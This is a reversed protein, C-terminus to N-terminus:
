GRRRLRRVMLPIGLSLLTLVSPEPVTIPTISINGFVATGSENPNNPDTQVQLYGGLWDPQGSSSGPNGTLDFYPNGATGEAQQGNVSYEFARQGTNPDITYIFNMHYTQGLAYNLTSGGKGPYGSAAPSFPYYSPGGFQAVVGGATVIVQCDGGFGGSPNSFIFGAELDKGNPDNGTLTLDFSASFYDNANWNYASSGGNNSFYWIDRNAFGTTSSVGSESLTVSSPYSNNASFTAGPIDNFVRPDIFASNISSVQAWAGSGVALCLAVLTRVRTNRHMSTM